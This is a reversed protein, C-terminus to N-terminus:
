PSLRFFDAVNLQNVFINGEVYVLGVTPQKGELVPVLNKRKAKEDIREIGTGLTVYINGLGDVTLRGNGNGMPAVYNSEFLDVDGRANLTLRFMSVSDGVTIYMFRGGADLEIDKIPKPLGELLVEPRGFIEGTYDMRIIQGKSPLAVYIKNNSSSFAIAGPEAGLDASESLRSFLQREAGSGQLQYKSIRYTSRVGPLQRAKGLLAADFNSVLMNGSSDMTLDRFISDHTIKSALDRNLVNGNIDMLWISSDSASQSTMLIHQFNPGKDYYFFESQGNGKLQTQIMQTISPLLTFSRTDNSDINNVNVKVRVETPLDSIKQALGEVVPAVLTRRDSSVSRAANTSGQGFPSIFTVTNNALNSDFGAGEITVVRSAFPSDRGITSEQRVMTVVPGPGGVVISATSRNGAEDIATLSLLDGSDAALNASFAGTEDTQITTANGLKGGQIVLTSRGSDAIAGSSGTIITEFSQGSPNRAIIKNTDIVPNLTDARLSVVTPLSTLGNVTAKVLLQHSSNRKLPVTISFATEGAALAKQVVSTGGEVSIVAGAPATGTLVISDQATSPPLSSSVTPSPTGAVTKLVNKVTSNNQAVPEIVSMVAFINSAGGLNTSDTSRQVADLVANIEPPSFETIPIKPQNLLTGNNLILRTTLETLPSINLSSSGSLMARMQSSGSGVTVVFESSILAESPLSLSYKGDSRTLTTALAQGLTNGNNDIKYLNVRVNSGVSQLGSLAEASPVLWSDLRMAPPVSAVRGSPALVSGSIVRTMLQDLRTSLTANSKLSVLTNSIASALPVTAYNIEQTGQNALTQSEAIVNLPFSFLPENRDVLYQVSATTVPSLDLNASTAFNRLFKGSAYNGAEVVLNSAPLSVQDTPLDLQYHGNADTKVTAYPEASVPKGDDDIRILRVEIGAPAKVLGTAAQAPPDIFSKVPGMLNLPAQAILSTDGQPLYVDGEIRFIDLTVQQPAPCGVVLLSAACALALQRKM